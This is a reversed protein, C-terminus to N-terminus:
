SAYVIQIMNAFTTFRQNWGATLIGTTSVGSSTASVMSVSFTPIRSKDASFVIGVLSPVILDQGIQQAAFFAMVADRIKEEVAPDYGSLRKLEIVLTVLASSSRQISIEHSIGFDDTVNYSVSGFTGIGPAKKRFIVPALNFTSGGSVVVCISHAPIGRADTSSSDNEYVTCATVNPVALVASRLSALTTVSPAAGAERLRSRCSVDSEAEQGPTAAASNVVSTLGAVPSVLRHVSGAPASIAGADSCVAQVTRSGSDDLTIGATQCRWVHGADDMAQPAFPLVANPTGTLTLLVTSHTAGARTLGALPLLIDLANGSAYDPNRSAYSSLLLQSLDDLARAFVSLLQYDPSSIELNIEPGFISRYSSILADLRDQFTPLHLGTSDIYPAFYM